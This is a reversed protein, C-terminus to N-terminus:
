QECGVDLVSQCDPAILDIIVRHYHLNHNWSQQLRGSWSRALGARWRMQESLSNLPSTLVGAPNAAKVIM